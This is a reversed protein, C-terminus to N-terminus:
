CSQVKSLVDAFPRSASPEAIAVLWAALVLADDASLPGVPQNLIMVTGSVRAAVMWRNTIDIDM